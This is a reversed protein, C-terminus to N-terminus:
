KGGYLDVNNDTGSQFAQNTKDSTVLQVELPKADGVFLSGPWTTRLTDHEAKIALASKQSNAFKTRESEITDQVKRWLASDLQPARVGAAVMAFMSKAQNADFTPSSIIATYTDKFDKSYQESVQSTQNIIKWMADYDVKNGTMVANFDARLSAEKNRCGIGAFVYWLIALLAVAGAASITLTKSNMNVMGYM